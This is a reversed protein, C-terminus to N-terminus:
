VWKVSSSTSARLPQINVWLRVAQHASVGYSGGLLTAWRQSRTCGGAQWCLRSKCSLPRSQSAECPEPAGCFALLGQSSGSEDAMAGANKRWSNVAQCFRPIALGLTHTSHRRPAVACLPNGPPSLPELVCADGWERHLEAESSHGDGTGPENQDGWGRGLGGSVAGRPNFGEGAATM